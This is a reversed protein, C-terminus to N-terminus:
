DISKNVDFGYFRLKVVDLKIQVASRLKREQGIKHEYCTAFIYVKSPCAALVQVGM